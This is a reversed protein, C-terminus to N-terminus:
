DYLDRLLINYWSHRIDAAKWRLETDSLLDRDFHMGFTSRCFWTDGDGIRSTPLYKLPGAADTKTIRKSLEEFLVRM